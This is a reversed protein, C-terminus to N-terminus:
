EVADVRELPDPSAAGGDDNESREDKEGQGKVGEDIENSENPPGYSRGVPETSRANTMSPNATDTVEDNVMQCIARPQQSEVHKHHVEINKNSTCLAISARISRPFDGNLQADNQLDHRYIPKTYEVFESDYCSGYDEERGLDADDSDGEDDESDSDCFSDQSSQYDELVLGFGQNSGATIPGTDRTVKVASNSTVPSQDTGLLGHKEIIPKIHSYVHGMGFSWHYRLLMDRNVFHNVYYHKWDDTDRANRSMPVGDPHLRGNAFAPILHCGRVVDAPDIFSFGDSSAMPVFQLMDLAAHDWGSPRESQKFWRVWLFELWCPQYNKSGPGIYIVNAHYIGLVRAYCFHHTEPENSSLLMVDRHDTGPNVIDTERQLDYTTYNFHVMNHRYIRNGQFVIENLVSSEQEASAHVSHRRPNGQNLAISPGQAQVCLRVKAAPDDSNHKMFSILDEPYNQSMGINHHCELKNSPVDDGHLTTQRACIHRIRAQRCEISTLQAIYGKRSTRTFRSKSTRHELEGCWNHPTLILLEMCGSRRQITRLLTYSTPKCPSSRQAAYMMPHLRGPNLPPLLLSGLRIGEASEAERRLEKTSFVPCTEAVFKCLRTSLKSTVMMMIDLTEDTHMRLKALGHWYCLYFLLQMVQSNHREPILKEFVPIACQLLDEFNRAAMQKMESVNNQFRRITDRGFTPVLRYRCNLELLGGQKLSDLIRLLHIFVAKWVGLEFEHLLDMVLMLFLDFGTHSLRESFANITPVWSEKKLLMEVKTSDVVYNQEYILKRASSIKDWREQTDCRAM